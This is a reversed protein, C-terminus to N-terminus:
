INTNLIKYGEKILSEKKTNLMLKGIPTSLLISITKNKWTIIKYGNRPNDKCFVLGKMMDKELKKIFDKEYKKTLWEEFLIDILFPITIKYENDMIVVPKMSSVYQEMEFVLKKNKVDLLYYSTEGGKGDNKAHFLKKNGFYVDCTFCNTEESMTKFFKINKITVM